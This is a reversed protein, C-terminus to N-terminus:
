HVKIYQLDLHQIGERQDFSFNENIYIKSNHVYVVSKEKLIYKCLVALKSPHWLDDDDIIAIWDFKSKEVAKRFKTGVKFNDDIVLKLDIDFDQSKLFEIPMGYSKFIVILEMKTREYKQNLVSKLADMFFHEHKFSILVISFEVSNMGISEKQLSNEKM